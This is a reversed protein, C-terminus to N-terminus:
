LQDINENDVVFFLENARIARKYYSKDKGTLQRKIMKNLHKFAKKTSLNVLSDRLDHMAELAFFKDIQLTSDLAFSYISDYYFMDINPPISVVSHIEGLPYSESLELHNTYLLLKSTSKTNKMAEIITKTTQKHDPHSDITPHPTIIIDPKTQKLIEELDNLFSLYTPKTKANLKINSHSVKRFLNMDNIGAVNSIAEQSNNEKMWKLTGGFYGLTLSNEYAVNGLLPITIADLSRLEAKKLSNATRDNDYLSCYNCVGQEGATTTVITVDKATKYLGFAAIEADDAHPALILIKKSLNIENKYGYISFLNNTLSLNKIVLKIENEQINSINLYRTGRAGYEFYHKTEYIKIYPKFFYSKLNFSLKIKLFLSDFDKCTSELLIINNKIKLETILHKNLNYIYDKSTNYKYRNDRKFVIFLYIILPTFLLFFIM